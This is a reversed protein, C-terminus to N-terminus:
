ATSNCADASLTKRNRLCQENIRLRCFLRKVPLNNGQADQVRFTLQGVTAHFPTPNSAEFSTIEVETDFSTSALVTEAERSDIFTRSKAQDCTMFINDVNYFAVKDIEIPEGTNPKDPKIKLERAIDDAIKLNTLQTDSKLHLNVRGEKYTLSAITVGASCKNLESNFAESIVKFTVVKDKGISNKTGRKTSIEVPLNRCRWLAREM